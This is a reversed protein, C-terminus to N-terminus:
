PYHMCPSSHSSPFIESFLYVPSHTPYTFHNLLHFYYCFWHWVHSVSAKTSGYGPRMCSLYQGRPHASSSHFTLQFYCPQPIATTPYEKRGFQFRFGFRLTQKLTSQHQNQIHWPAPHSISTLLTSYCCISHLRPKRAMWARLIMPWSGLRHFSDILKLYLLLAWLTAPLILSSTLVETLNTIIWSCDTKRELLPSPSFFLVVFCVFMLIGTTVQYLQPYWLTVM